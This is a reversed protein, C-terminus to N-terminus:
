FCLLFDQFCHSLFLRLPLFLEFPLLNRMQFWLLDFPVSLMKWTSFSSDIMFEINLLSMRWFHLPFLSMRLPFSLSHTVPLGVSWLHTPFARWILFLYYCPRFSHFPFFFLLNPFSHLIFLNDKEKHYNFWYLEM